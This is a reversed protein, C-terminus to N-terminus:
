RGGAASKLQGPPYLLSLSHLSFSALSVGDLSGELTLGPRQTRLFHELMRLSLHGPQADRRDVARDVSQDLIPQQGRDPIGVM